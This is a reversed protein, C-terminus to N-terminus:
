RPAPATTFNLEGKWKVAVPKGDQMAPTYTCGGLFRQIARVAGSSADGKVAVDRVKGDEGILYDLVLRGNARDRAGLKPGKSRCSKRVPPTTGEAFTAPQEKALQAEPEPESHACGALALLLIWRM